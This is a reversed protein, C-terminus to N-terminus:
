GYTPFGVSGASTETETVPMNSLSLGVDLKPNLVTCKQLVSHTVM